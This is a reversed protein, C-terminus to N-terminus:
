YLAFDDNNDMLKEMSLQHLHFMERHFRPTSAPPLTQFFAKQPSLVTVLPGIIQSRHDISTASSSSCIINIILTIFSFVPSFTSFSHFSIYMEESRQIGLKQLMCPRTLGDHTCYYKCHTTYKAVQSWQGPWGGPPAM